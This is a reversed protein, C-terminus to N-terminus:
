RLTPSVVQITYGLAVYGAPVKDWVWTIEATCYPAMIIIIITTTMTITVINIM